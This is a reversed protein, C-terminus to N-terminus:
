GARPALRSPGAPDAPPVASSSVATAGTSMAPSPALRRARRGLPGLSRRPGPAGTSSTATPELGREKAHRALWALGCAIGTFLWIEKRLFLDLFMAM